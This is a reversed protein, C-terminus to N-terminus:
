LECIEIKYISKDSLDLEAQVLLFVVFHRSARDIELLRVIRSPNLATRM